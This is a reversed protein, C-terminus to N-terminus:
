CSFQLQVTKMVKFFIAKKLRRLTKKSLGWKELPIKDGIVHVAIVKLKSSWSPFLKKPNKVSFVFHTWDDKSKIKGQKVFKDLSKELLKVLLNSFIDFIIEGGRFHDAMEIFLEKIQHEPFYYILGGAIFFIGKKPDYEVDDFWSYDFISKAIYKNRDSDKIFKKRFEIVEPLDLDYWKIKGNDVRFFRTDLGCGLNIVTTEPYQELYQKLRIDFDKARALLGLAVVENIYEEVGSLNPEIYKYIEVAKKDELFEPYKQTLVVHAWFTALM